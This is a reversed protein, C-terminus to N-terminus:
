KAARRGRIGLRQRYKTVLAVDALNTLKLLEADSVLAVGDKSNEAIIREVHTLRPLLDLGRGKRAQRKYITLPIGTRKRTGRRHVILVGKKAKSAHRRIKQREVRIAEALTKGPHLKMWRRVRAMRNEVGKRVRAQVLAKKEPSM